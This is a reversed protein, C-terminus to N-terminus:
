RREESRHVVRPAAVQLAPPIKLPDRQLLDCRHPAITVGVQDRQAIRHGRECSHIRAFRLHHLHLEKASKANFFRGLYELNRRHRHLAFPPRSSEPQVPFHSAPAISESRHFRASAKSCDTKSRAGSSRSANRCRAQAPSSGSACSSRAKSANSVPTSFNRPLGAMSTSASAIALSLVSADASFRVPLVM